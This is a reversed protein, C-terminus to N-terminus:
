VMFEISREVEGIRKTVDDVNTVLTNMTSQFKTIKDNLSDLVSLKKFMQEVRNTLSDIKTYDIPPNMTSNLVPQPTPGQPTYPTYPACPINYFGQVLSQQSLNANANAANPYIQFNGPGQLVPSSFNQAVSNMEILNLDTDISKNVNVSEDKHTCHYKGTKESSTDQTNTSKKRKKNNKGHKKSNM